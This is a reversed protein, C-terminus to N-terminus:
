EPLEGTLDKYASKFATVSSFGCIESIQQESVGAYDDIQRLKMAYEIRKQNKLKNFSIDMVENLCFHIHHEPIQLLSALGHPSFNQKLYPKEKDVYELIRKALNHFYEDDNIVEDPMPVCGADKLRLKAADSNSQPMGYLLRPNLFIYVTMGFYLFVASYLLLNMFAGNYVDSNYTIYIFNIINQIVSLLLIIAIIIILRSSVYSIQLDTKSQLQKYNSKTKIILVLSALVYMFFQVARLMNNMYLPYLTNINLLKFNNYDNLLLQSIYTKIEWPFILYSSNSILHITFPLFHILDVTKFYFKDNRIGRIFFYLMPAKIMYSPSIIFLLTYFNVNGGYIFISYAINELSYLILFLALFLVNKNVRWNFLVIIIALIINIFSFFSIFTTM